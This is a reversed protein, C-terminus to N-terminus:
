FLVDFCLGTEVSFFDFSKQDSSIKHYSQVLDITIM